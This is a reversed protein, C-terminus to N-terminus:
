SNQGNIQNIKQTTSFGKIRDFFIINDVYQSGIVRKDKYDSGIILYHPNWLRIQNELELDSGFSVVSDVWKISEMMLIREELTNIPRLEGKFEKIRKDTDLGVRVSGFGSAYKLLEIHGKHLVDFSGNVWVRAM